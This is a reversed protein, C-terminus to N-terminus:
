IFSTKNAGMNVVFEFLDVFDPMDVYMDSQHRVKDKVTEFAVEAAVASEMELGVAGTLVALATLESTRLALQQGSNLAQSILSCATPEEKYMKWSLVEMQIGETLLSALGPDKAAVAQTWTSLVM